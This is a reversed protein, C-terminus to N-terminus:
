LPADPIMFRAVFILSVSLLLAGLLVCAPKKFHTM